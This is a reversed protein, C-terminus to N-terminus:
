GPLKEFADIQALTTALPGSEAFAGRYWDATWNIALRGPLRDRWGLLARARSSDVALTHMERSDAPQHEYRADRGLAKLMEETLEGVTIPTTPDPGFNLTEPLSEGRELADVYTLYGHLCDLVHQWPRTAHPMRLVPRESKAAARVIDPVIRDAAYDGGGIVNGGRATVIKVSADKFFSQAYARTVLEAAAKSASYPDKGGLRADEAFAAGQEDNAYVKDSTVVLITSVDPASRLAQLLHAAGMVNTALTGLPDAHSRRVIAQAALHLVIQPRAKAVAAEVSEFDNLDGFTSNLRKGVQAMEYLSADGEPPLAFGYVEAGLRDLWLALWAGKFGTHGTLLVRRGALTKWKDM